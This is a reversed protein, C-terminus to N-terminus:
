CCLCWMPVPGQLAAVGLLVAAGLLGAGLVKGATM